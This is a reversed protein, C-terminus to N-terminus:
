SKENRRKLRGGNNIRRAERGNYAATHPKIGRRERDNMEKEKKEETERRKLRAPKEATIVAAKLGGTGKFSTIKTEKNAM